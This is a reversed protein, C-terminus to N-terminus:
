TPPETAVRKLYLREYQDRTSVAALEWGETGRANLYGHLDPCSALAAENDGSEPTIPGLWKGNEWTAKGHQSLVVVYEFATSAKM